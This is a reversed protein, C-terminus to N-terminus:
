VEGLIPNWGRGQVGEGIWVHGVPRPIGPHLHGDAVASGADALAIPLGTIWYAAITQPHGSGIRGGPFPPRSESRTAVKPGNRSPAAGGGGDRNNGGTGRRGSDHQPTEVLHLADSFGNDAIHWEPTFQADDNAALQDLARHGIRM